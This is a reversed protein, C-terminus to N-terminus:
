AMPKLLNRAINVYKRGSEQAQLVAQSLPLANRVSVLKILMPLNLGALVEIADNNMVSISLNSPTGGFMDTLIVVGRGKDVNEVAALIAERCKEMDDNPEICVTALREQRGMIHEVIKVFEEALKGHTVLIIGIM